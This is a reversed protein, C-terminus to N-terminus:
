VGVHPRDRRVETWECGCTECSYHKKIVTPEIKEYVGADASDGCRHCRESVGRSVPM